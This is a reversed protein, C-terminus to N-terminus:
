DLLSAAILQSRPTESAQCLPEKFGGAPKPREILETKYGDADEVFAIVTKGGKVPGAERTVKFGASRVREVAAAASEVAVGWHGFGTGLDYSTVGENVTLELAFQDTEPGFGVFINSYQM